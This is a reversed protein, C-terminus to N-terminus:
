TPTCLLTPPPISFTQAGYGSAPMNVGRLVRPRFHGLPAIHACICACVVAGVHVYMAAHAPPHFIRQGAHECRASGSPPLSGFAWHLCMHVCM